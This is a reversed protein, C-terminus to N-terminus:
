ADQSRVSEFFSISESFDKRLAGRWYDDANKFYSQYENQQEPSLTHWAENSVVLVRNLIIAHVKEGTEISCTRRTEMDCADYSVNCPLLGTIKLANIPLPFQKAMEKMNDYAEKLQDYMM